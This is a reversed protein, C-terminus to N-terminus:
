VLSFLLLLIIFSFLKKTNESFSIQTDNACYISKLEFVSCLRWVVFIITPGAFLQIWICFVTNSDLFWVYELLEFHPTLLKIHIGINYLISNQSSITERARKLSVELGGLWETVKGNERGIGNLVFTNFNHLTKFDLNKTWPELRLSFNALIM